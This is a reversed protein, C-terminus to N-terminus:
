KRVDSSKFLDPELIKYMDFFLSSLLCHQLYYNQKNYPLVLLVM